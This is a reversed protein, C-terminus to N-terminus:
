SKDESAVTMSEGSTLRQAVLRSAAAITRERKALEAMVPGPLTAMQAAMGEASEAEILLYDAFRRREDDTLLM